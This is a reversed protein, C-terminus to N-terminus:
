AAERPLCCKKYKKGSGCPCPDNRGIKPTPRVYTETHGYDDNDNGYGNGVVVPESNLRAQRELAERDEKAWREQRQAIAQPDYFQWPDNRRAHSQPQDQATAYADAVDNILFAAGFKHASQQKALAELMARHRPRPFDLLANASFFRFDHDDSKDQAASALRDLANDLEAAGRQQEMALMADIANSRIYWELSRDEVLNRVRALVDPPKNRFLAAWYGSLWEQLNQDDHVSMARMHGALLLGAAETPMAGLIMAAHLLRWWEGRSESDQWSHSQLVRELHAVFVDERRICEDIANRPVRDEDRALLKLLEDPTLAALSADSYAPIPPLLTM